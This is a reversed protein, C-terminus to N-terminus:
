IISNLLTSSDMATNQIPLEIAVLTGDLHNLGYEIEEIDGSILLFRGNLQYYVILQTFAFLFLDTITSNRFM